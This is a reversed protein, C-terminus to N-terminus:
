TNHITPNLPLTDTDRAAAAAMDLAHITAAASLAATETRLRCPGLSVPRWGLDLALRIEDPAFDGEPGILFATQSAAPDYEGALLRRPISRDCYAIFRQTDPGFERVFTKFPTLEDIQPLRAKLSQKMASVAIKVLRETKLVRRESRDCLLPVIRDVGMEVLKEVLWEMRDLNKTPAVAAVLEAPWPRPEEVTATIEVATHKPHPAVIRCTHVLGQGDVVAVEDGAGMRLVRVCHASDSEPLTLTSEIDPSYFRIM